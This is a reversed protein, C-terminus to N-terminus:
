GMEAWHHLKAVPKGPARQSTMTGLRNFIHFFTMFKIHKAYFKSDNSGKGMETAYNKRIRSCECPLFM